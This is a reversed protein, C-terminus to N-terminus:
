IEQNYNLKNVAAQELLLEERSAMACAVTFHSQASSPSTCALHGCGGPTGEARRAAWVPSHVALSPARCGGCQAQDRAADLWASTTKNRRSLMLCKTWKEGSHVCHSSARREAKDLEDKASNFDAKVTASDERSLTAKPLSCYSRSGGQEPVRSRWWQLSPEMWLCHFLWCPFGLNCKM